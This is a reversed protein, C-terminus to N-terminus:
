YLCVQCLAPLYRMKLRDPLCMIEMVKLYYVLVRKRLRGGDTKEFRVLVEVIDWRGVFIGSILIFGMIYGWVGDQNRYKYCIGDDM